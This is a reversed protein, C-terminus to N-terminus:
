LSRKPAMIILVIIIIIILFLAFVIHRVFKTQSGYYSVSCVCYTEGLKMQPTQPFYNFWIYIVHYKSCGVWPTDFGNNMAYRVGYGHYKSGKGM